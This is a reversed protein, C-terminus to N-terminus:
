RRHRETWMCCGWRGGSHGLLLIIDMRRNTTTTTTTTHHNHQTTTINHNHQSQTKPTTNALPPPLLFPLPWRSKGIVGGHSVRSFPLPALIPSFATLGGELNTLPIRNLYIHLCSFLFSSSSSSFLLLVSHSLICLPAGTERGREREDEKRWRSQLPSLKRPWFSPSFHYSLPFFLAKPLFSLFFLSLLGDSLLFPFLPLHTPTPGGNSCLACM